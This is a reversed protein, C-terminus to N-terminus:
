RERLDRALREGFEERGFAALDQAIIECRQLTRSEGRDEIVPAFYCRDDLLAALNRQEEGDALQLRLARFTGCEAGHHAVDRLPLLGFLFKAVGLFCGFLCAPLFRFEEGLDAVFQPRREIGDQAKGFDHPEFAEAFDAVVFIAAIDIVDVGAARM